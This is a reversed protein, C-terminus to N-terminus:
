PREDHGSRLSIFREYREVLVERRETRYRDDERSRRLVATGLLTGPDGHEPNSSRVKLLLEGPATVQVSRELSGEWDVSWLDSTWTALALVEHFATEGTLAYYHDTLENHMTGNHERQRYVLEWRGDDELDVLRLGALVTDLDREWRTSWREPRANLRGDSSCELVLEVASIRHSREEAWLAYLTLGGPLAARRAEAAGLILLGGDDPIAQSHQLADLRTAVGSPLAERSVPEFTLPGASWSDAASAADSGVLAVCLALAWGARCLALSCLAVLSSM